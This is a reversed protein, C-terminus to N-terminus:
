SAKHLQSSTTFHPTPPAVASAATNALPDRLLTLLAEADLRRPNNSMREANVSAVLQRLEDEATIGATALSVPCGLSAILREIQLCAMAVDVADFAQLILSIRRRVHEVGRPDQCDAATVQANYALLPSLTLAVAIGHPIGYQSTLRYSLAHPATTKSVNIARGAFHSAQSMGLRAAPTPHNVANPLHQQALNMARTADVISEDTAGVAWLSEVAQCYADLGTAATIGRPLSATLQSDVIAWRPLMSPHAVSFKEGAIYAVAFHTAESGTGATTPIALLPVGPQVIPSRGSVLARLEGPQRALTGILKGLDIATGGGFSVVLDPQFQQFLAVGRAIDEIKPNLAFGTFKQVDYSAFIPGLTHEAGSAQYAGEDVVFLIRRASQQTLVQAFHRLAGAELYVTTSADHKSLM